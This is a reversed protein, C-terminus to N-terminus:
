IRAVVQLVQEVLMKTAGNQIEITYAGIRVTVTAEKNHLVPLAAFTPMKRQITSIAGNKRTSPMSISFPANTDTEDTSYTTSETELADLVEERIRKLRYYYTKVNIGQTDCWQQVTQGSQKQEQVQAAWEQYHVSRKV